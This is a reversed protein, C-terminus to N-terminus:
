AHGRLSFSLSAEISFVNGGGDLCLLLLDQTAQHILSHFLDSASSYHNVLYLSIHDRSMFLESVPLDDLGINNMKQKRFQM